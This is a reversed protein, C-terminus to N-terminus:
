ELGLRESKYVRSYVAQFDYGERRCIGIYGMYPLVGEAGAGGVEQGLSVKPSNQKSPYLYDIVTEMQSLNQWLLPSKNLKTLRIFRPKFSPFNLYVLLYDWYLLDPYGRWESSYLPVFRPPPSPYSRQESEHRLFNYVHYHGAHCSCGRVPLLLFAVKILRM